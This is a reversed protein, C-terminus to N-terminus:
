QNFQFIHRRLITVKLSQWAFYLGRYNSGHPFTLHRIQIKSGFSHSLPQLKLNVTIKIM